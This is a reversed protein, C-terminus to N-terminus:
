SKDVEECETNRWKGTSPGRIYQMGRRVQCCGGFVQESHPGFQAGLIVVYVSTNVQDGVVRLM